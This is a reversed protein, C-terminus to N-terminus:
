GLKKLLRSLILAKPLHVTGIAFNDNCHILVRCSQNNKWVVQLVHMYWKLEWKM